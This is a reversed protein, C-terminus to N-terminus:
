QAWRRWAVVSRGRDVGVIFWPQVHWERIGTAWRSGPVGALWTADAYTSATVGPPVWASLEGHPVVAVLRVDWDSPGLGGGNAYAIHFALELCTRRFTVCRELFEIRQVLGPLTDGSTQTSPPGDQLSCGILAAASLALGSTICHNAHM